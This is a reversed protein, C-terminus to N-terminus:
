RAVGLLERGLLIFGGTVVLGIVVYRFTRENLRGVLYGALWFGILVGPVLLGVITLTSRSYLGAVAYLSLQVSGSLVFMAALSARVTQAPWKQALAYVAGILGGISLATVALCTIFGFFLGSGPFTAYPFRIERLSLLGMVVIVGGIIVRLMSPEAKDLLLVDDVGKAALHYATSAGIVGAGVVVAGATRRM